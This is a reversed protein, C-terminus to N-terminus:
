ISVGAQADTIGMMITMMVIPMMMIPMMMISVMMMIM